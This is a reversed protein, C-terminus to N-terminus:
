KSSAKAVIFIVLGIVVVVMLVGASVGAQFIDGILKCGSLTLIFAVALFFAIKNM